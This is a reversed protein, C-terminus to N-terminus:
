NNITSLTKSPKFEFWSEVTHQLKESENSSKHMYENSTPNYTYEAAWEEHHNCVTEISNVLYEVEANTLIPHISLRVWGPLHAKNGSLIEQMITFSKDPGVELLYHGYTGACACGGRVQIGFKDNLLKVMLNYHMDKVIFSIVGLRDTHEGALVHIKEIKQLRGIITKVMDHERHLINEIGMAEKLKIAMATRIAQLFPPTGGDERLEIDTIYKHVRWPNTYVVTGGGPNDPVTNNYLKANFIVIGSTGPGGM